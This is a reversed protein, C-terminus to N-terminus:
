IIIIIIHHALLKITLKSKKKSRKIQAAQQMADKL